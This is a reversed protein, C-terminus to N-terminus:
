EGPRTLPVAPGPRQYMAGPSDFIVYTIRRGVEQRPLNPVGLAALREAPIPATRNGGHIPVGTRRAAAFLSPSVIAADFDRPGTETIVGRRFSVGSVASGRLYSQASPYRSRQLAGTVEQRFRGWQARDMGLPGHHQIRLVHLQGRLHDEYTVRSPRTTAIPTFRYNPALSRIAAQLDAVREESRRRRAVAGLAEFYERDSMNRWDLYPRLPLPAADPPRNHGPGPRPPPRPPPRAGGTKPTGGGGGDVWQGGDSTGKPARPQQRWRPNYKAETARRAALLRKIDALEARIASIFALRTKLWEIDTNHM